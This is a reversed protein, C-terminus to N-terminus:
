QRVILVEDISPQLMGDVERGVSQWRFSNDDVVTIINTSSAKRGDPLVSVKDVKWGDDKAHWTGQAFGGDSDFTWSRIQETSPDWGVIQTGGLEQQDGVTATFARILFNKNPTWRCTTEISIEEDRDVWTGIMWELSQLQQYHSEVVPQDVETVHDVLWQGDRKVHVASYATETVEGDGSFVRAVSQEVAVNPSIFQISQMDIELREPEADAFMAAYEKEIEDRGKLTKGSTPSEYIADPSWLAAVAKADQTNYADAYKETNSIIVEEDAASDAEQAIAELHAGGIALLLAAALTQKM